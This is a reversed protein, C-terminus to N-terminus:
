RVHDADYKAPNEPSICCNSTNKQLIDPIVAMLTKWQESIDLIQSLQSIHSPPLKRVQFFADVTM